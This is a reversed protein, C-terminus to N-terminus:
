TLSLFEAMAARALGVASLSMLLVLAFRRFTAPPAKLFQRNGLAVGLFLPALSLAFLSLAAEDLLGRAGTLGAAYVDIALIYAILVARASVGPMAGGVLFLVAPLGGIAAAGNLAGSVLGVAVAALPRPLGGEGRRRWLLLSALFVALATAGRLPNAPATALLQVGLPNGVLAGASLWGFIRFDVNKWVGPLLRVSAVVELLLSAPVVQAPPLVLSLALVYLASFGFGSYGRVVAAAFVAMVIYVITGTPLGSIFALASGM